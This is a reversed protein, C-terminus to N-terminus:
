LHKGAIEMIEEPSVPKNLVGRVGKTLYEKVGPDEKDAGTIFYVPCLTDEAESTLKDFVTYGDMGPMQIDLLILGINKKQAKYIKLAVEGNPAAKVSYQTKLIADLVSLNESNDDVILVALSM